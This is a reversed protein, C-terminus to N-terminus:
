IEGGCVVCRHGDGKGNKGEIFDMEKGCCHPVGDKIHPVKKRREEKLIDKWSM